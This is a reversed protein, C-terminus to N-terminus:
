IRLPGVSLGPCLPSRSRGHESGTETKRFTVIVIGSHRGLDLRELRNVAQLIIADSSGSRDLREVAAGIIVLLQDDDVHLPRLAEGSRFLLRFIYDDVRAVRAQRHPQVALLNVLHLDDDALSFTWCRHHGGVDFIRVHGRNSRAAQSTFFRMPGRM